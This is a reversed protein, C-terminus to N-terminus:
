LFSSSHLQRTKPCCSSSFRSVSIASFNLKLCLSCFTRSVTHSQSFCTVWVMSLVLSLFRVRFDNPGPIESWPVCKTYNGSSIKMSIPLTAVPTFLVSYSEETERLGKVNVSSMRPALMNRLVLPPHPM